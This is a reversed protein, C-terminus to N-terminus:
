IFDYRMRSNEGTSNVAWFCSRSEALVFSTLMSSIRWRVTFFTSNEGGLGVSSWASSCFFGTSTWLPKVLTSVNVTYQSRIVFSVFDQFSLSIHTSPSQGRELSKRRNCKSVTWLPSKPQIRGRKKNIKEEKKTKGEVM